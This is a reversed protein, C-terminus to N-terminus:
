LAGGHYKTLTADLYSLTETLGKNGITAAHETLTAELPNLNATPTRKHRSLCANM